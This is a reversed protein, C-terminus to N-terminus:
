TCYFIIEKDKPINPVKSTFEQLTMAGDLLLGRCRTEDEYACVLLSDGSVTSQRAEEVQIRPVNAVNKGQAEQPCGFTMVHAMILIFLTIVGTVERFFFQSNNNKM